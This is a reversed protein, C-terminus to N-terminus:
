EAEWEARLFEVPSWAECCITVVSLSDTKL